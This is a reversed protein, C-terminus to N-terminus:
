KLAPPLGLGSEGKEADGGSHFAECAHQQNHQQNHVVSHTGSVQRSPAELHDGTRGRGSNLSTKWHADTGDSSHALRSEITDSLRREEDGDMQSMTRTGMSTVRVQDIQDTTPRAVDAATAANDEDFEFADAEQENFDQGPNATEYELVKVFRYFIVALISGM